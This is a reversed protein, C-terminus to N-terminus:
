QIAVASLKYPFWNARLKTKKNYSTYCKETFSNNTVEVKERGQNTKCPM